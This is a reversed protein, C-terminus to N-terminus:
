VIKNSQLRVPQDVGKIKSSAVKTLYYASVLLLIALGILVIELSNKM